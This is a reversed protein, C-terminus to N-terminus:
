IKRTSLHFGPAGRPPTTTPPPPSTAITREGVMCSFVPDSVTTPCYVRSDASADRPPPLPSCRSWPRAAERQHPKGCLDECTRFGWLEARSFASCGSLLAVVLAVLAPTLFPFAPWLCPPQGFDLCVPFAPWLCLCVVWALIGLSGCQVICGGGYRCGLVFMAHRQGKVRGKVLAFLPARGRPGGRWAGGKPAM